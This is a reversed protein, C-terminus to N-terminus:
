KIHSCGAIIQALEKLVDGEVWGSCRGRPLCVIGRKRLDVLIDQVYSQSYELVDALVRSSVPSLPSRRVDRLTEIVTREIESLVYDGQADPYGCRPCRSMTM